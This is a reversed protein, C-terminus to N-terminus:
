SELVEPLDVMQTEQMLNGVDVVVAVVLQSLEQL